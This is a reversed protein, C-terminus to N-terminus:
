AQKFKGHETRAGRSRCNRSDVSAQKKPKGLIKIAKELISTKELICRTCALLIDSYQTDEPEVDKEDAEFYVVFFGQKELRDALRRLETSNGGGRYGSYLQCTMRKSRLIKRGLDIRVDEDGRVKQCEVYRDDGAPLPELPDFMNYLDALVDSM